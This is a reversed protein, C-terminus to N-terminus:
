DPNPISSSKVKKLAELAELEEPGGREALRKLIFARYGQQPHSQALEAKGTISEPNIEVVRCALYGQSEQDIPTFSRHGEYKAVLNNLLDTKKQGEPLIRAKGRIIVSQYLQHARCPNQDPNCDIGLYSLPLDVEFCARSDRRLNEM